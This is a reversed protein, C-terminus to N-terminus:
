VGRKMAELHQISLRQKESVGGLMLLRESLSEAITLQFGVAIQLLTIKLEIPLVVEIGYVLAFRTQNTTVKFITWYAWFASPM